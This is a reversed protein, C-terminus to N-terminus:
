ASDSASLCFSDCASCDISSRFPSGLCVCACVFVPCLLGIPKLLIMSLFIVQRTEDNLLIALM